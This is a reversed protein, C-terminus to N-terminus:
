LFPGPRRRHFWPGLWLWSVGRAEEARGDMRVRTWREEALPDPVHREETRRPLGGMCRETHARRPAVWAGWGLRAEAWLAPTRFTNTTNGFSM